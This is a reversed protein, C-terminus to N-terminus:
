EPCKTGGSGIDYIIIKSISNMIEKTKSVKEKILAVLSFPIYYNKSHNDVDLRCMELNSHKLFRIAYDLERLFNSKSLIKEPIYIKLIKTSMTKMRKQILSINSNVESTEIRKQLFRRHNLIVENSVEPKFSFGARDFSVFSGIPLEKRVEQSITQGKQATVVECGLATSLDSLINITDENFDMCVPMVETIGKTNNQIIVHKVEPSMGFCFIVHPSKSDAANHLLHHIEGVSEIMGDIIVYRYDKMEHIRKKGLFDVDYDLDFRINNNKRIFVADGSHSEVNITYELSCYKVINEIINRVDESELSYLFERMRDKHLKFRDFINLKEQDSFFMDVFVSGLKPYIRELKEYEKSIILKLQNEELREDIINLYNVSPDDIDLRKSYLCSNSNTLNVYKTKNSELFSSVLSGCEVKTKFKQSPTEGYITQHM